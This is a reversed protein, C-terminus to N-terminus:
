LLAGIFSLLAGPSFIVLFLKSPVREALSKGSWTPEPRGLAFITSWSALFGGVITLVKSWSAPLQPSIAGSAALVALAVGLLFVSLLFARFLYRRVLRGQEETQVRWDLWAEPKPWIGAAYRKGLDPADINASLIDPPGLDVYASFNFVLLWTARWDSARRPTYTHQSSMDLDYALGPPPRPLCRVPAVVYHSAMMMPPPVRMM